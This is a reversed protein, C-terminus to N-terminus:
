NCSPNKWESEHVWLDWDQGRQAPPLRSWLSAWGLSQQQHNLVAHWLFSVQKSIFSRPLVSNKGRAFHFGPGQGLRSLSTLAHALGCLWISPSCPVLLHTIIKDPLQLSLVAAAEHTNLPKSTDGCLHTELLGPSAPETTSAESTPLVKADRSCLPRQVTSVASM